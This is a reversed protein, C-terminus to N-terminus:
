GTWWVGVRDGEVGWEDRVALRGRGEEGEEERGAWLLRGLRGVVGAVSSSCRCMEVVVVVSM